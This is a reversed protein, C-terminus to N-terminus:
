TMPQTPIVQSKNMLSSQASSVVAEKTLKETMSNNHNRTAM